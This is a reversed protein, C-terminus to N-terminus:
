PTRRAFTQTPASHTSRASPPNKENAAVTKVARMIIRWEEPPVVVSGPPIAPAAPAPPATAAPAPAPKAAPKAPPVPAPAPLRDVRAKYREGREARISENERRALRDSLATQAHSAQIMSPPEKRPM